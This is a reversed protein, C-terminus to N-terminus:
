KIKLGLFFRSFDINTISFISILKLKVYYIIGNNKSVIIQIKNIFISTIFSDLSANIMFINHDM